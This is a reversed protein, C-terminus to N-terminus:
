RGFKASRANQEPPEFARVVQVNPLGQETLYSNLKAAVTHWLMEINSNPECDFRLRIAEAGDPHDAPDLQRPEDPTGYALDGPPTAHLHEDVPELIAWDSNLHLWGHACSFAIFPFESAGYANHVM